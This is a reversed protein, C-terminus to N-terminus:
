SERGRTAPGAALLLPLEDAEIAEGVTTGDALVLYAALARMLAGDGESSAFELTAKLWMLRARWMRMWEREVMEEGVLRSGPPFLRRAEVASPRAVKFQYRRGRLVFQIGDGTRDSALAFGDARHARLLSRMEAQTRDAAVTTGEAYRRM